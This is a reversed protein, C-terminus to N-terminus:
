QVATIYVYGKDLLSTFGPYLRKLLGSSVALTVDDCSGGVPEPATVFAGVPAIGGLFKATNMHYYPSFTTRQCLLDSSVQLELELADVIEQFKRNPFVQKFIAPTSAIFQEPTPYPFEGEFFRVMVQLYTIMYRCATSYAVGFFVHLDSLDVGTRCRMLVLLIATRWDMARPRGGDGAVRFLDAHKNHVDIDIELLINTPVWGNRRQSNAVYSFGEKTSETAVIMLLDDAHVTLEDVADDGPIHDSFAAWWSNPRFVGCTTRNFYQVFGVSDVPVPINAGPNIADMVGNANMLDLFAAFTDPAHFSTWRRCAHSLESCLLDFTLPAFHPKNLLEERLAILELRIEELQTTAEVLKTRTTRLEQAQQQFDHKLSQLEREKEQLERETNRQDTFEQRSRHEDADGFKFHENLISRIASADDQSFAERLQDCLHRHREDSEDVAGAPVPSIDMAVAELSPM